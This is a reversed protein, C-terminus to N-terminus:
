WIAIDDNALNTKAGDSWIRFSDANGSMLSKGTMTNPSEYWYGRGYPDLITTNTGRVSLQNTRFSMYNSIFRYLGNTTASSTPFFGNDTRYREMALGMMQVESRAQDLAAKKQVGGAAALVIGAIIGIVAVVVMMEVLTFARGRSFRISFVTKKSNIFIM